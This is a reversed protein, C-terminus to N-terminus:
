TNRKGDLLAYERDWLLKLHTLKTCVSAIEVIQLAIVCLSNNMCELYILNPLAQAGRVLSKSSLNPCSTVILNKVHPCNELWDLNYLVM